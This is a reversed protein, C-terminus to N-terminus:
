FAERGRAPQSAELWRLTETSCNGRRNFPSLLKEEVSPQSAYVSILMQCLAQCMPIMSYTNREEEEKLRFLLRKPTPTDGDDGQLHSTQLHLSSPQDGGNM